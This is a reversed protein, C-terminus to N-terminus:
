NSFAFSRLSLFPCFDRPRRIRRTITSDSKEEDSSPSASNSFSAVDSELSSSCSSSTWPFFLLTIGWSVLRVVTWEWEVM